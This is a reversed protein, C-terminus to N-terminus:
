AAARREGAVLRVWQEVEALSDFMRMQGWRMVYYGGMPDTHLEFGALQLTAFPKARRDEPPVLARNFEALSACVVLTGGYLPIRIRRSTM